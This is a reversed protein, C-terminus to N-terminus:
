RFTKKIEIEENEPTYVTIKFGSREYENDFKDLVEKKSNGRLEISGGQANQAILQYM